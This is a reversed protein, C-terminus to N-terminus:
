VADVAVTQLKEDHETEYQQM